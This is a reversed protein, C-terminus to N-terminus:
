KVKRWFKDFRSITVEAYGHKAHVLNASTAIITVTMVENSWIEGPKSKALGQRCKLIKEFVGIEMPAKPALLMEKAYDLVSKPTKFDDEDHTLFVEAEPTDPGCTQPKDALNQGIEPQQSPKQQSMSPTLKRSATGRLSHLVFRPWKDVPDLSM